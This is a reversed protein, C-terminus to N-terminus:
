RVVARSTYWQGKFEYDANEHYRKIYPAQHTRMGWLTQSDELITCEAIFDDQDDPTVFAGILDVGTKIIDPLLMKWDLAAMDVPVNFKAVRKRLSDIVDGLRNVLCDNDDKCDEDWTSMRVWALDAQDMWSTQLWLSREGFALPGDEDGHVTTCEGIAGQQEECSPMRTFGHETLLAKRATLDGGYVAHYLEGRNVFPWLDWDGDDFFEITNLKVGFGPMEMRRLAFTQAARLMQGSYSRIGTGCTLDISGTHLAQKRPKTAPDCIFFEVVDLFQGTSSLINTNGSTDAHVYFDLDQEHPNTLLANDFSEASVTKDFVSLPDLPLSFRLRVPTGRRPVYELQRGDKPEDADRDYYLLPDFWREEFRAHQREGLANVRVRLGISEIVMQQRFAAQIRIERHDLPQGSCDTADFAAIDTDVVLRYTAPHAGTGGGSPIVYRPLASWWRWQQGRHQAPHVVLRINDGCRLQYRTANTALDPCGTSTLPVWERQGAIIQERQVEIMTEPHPHKDRLVDLPDESGLLVSEIRLDIAVRRVFFVVHNEPDLMEATICYERLGQDFWVPHGISQDCYGIIEWCRDATVCLPRVGQVTSEYENPTTFRVADAANFLPDADIDTISGRLRYMDQLTPKLVQFKPNLSINYVSMAKRSPIVIASAGVISGQYSWMSFLSEKGPKAICLLNGRSVHSSILTTDTVLGLYEGSTTYVDVSGGSDVEIRVRISDHREYVAEVRIMGQMNECSIECASQLTTDGHLEPLLPCDWHSFVLNPQLIHPARVRLTDGSVVVRNNIELDSFDGKHMRNGFRERVSCEVKTAGRVMSEYM